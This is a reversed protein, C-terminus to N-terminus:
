GILEHRDSRGPRRAEGSLQVPGRPQGHGSHQRRSPHDGASCKRDLPVIGDPDAEILGRYGHRIGLVEWGRWHSSVAVARLVANLGPADGGGTNIAIRRKSASPVRDNYGAQHETSPTPRTAGGRRGGPFRQGGWSASM